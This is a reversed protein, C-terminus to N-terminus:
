LWEPLDRSNRGIRMWMKSMGMQLQWLCERAIRRKEELELHKELTLGKFVEGKGEASRTIRAVWYGLSLGIKLRGNRYFLNKM